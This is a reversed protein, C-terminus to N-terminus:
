YLTEQCGQLMLVIKLAGYFDDNYNNYDETILLGCKFSYKRACIKRIAPKTNFCDNKFTGNSREVSM